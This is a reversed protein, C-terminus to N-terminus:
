TDSLNYFLLNTNPFTDSLTIRFLNTLQRVVSDSLYCFVSPVTPCIVFFVRKTNQTKQQVIKQTKSSLELFFQRVIGSFVTWCFVFFLHLQRVIRSNTLSDSLVCFNNFHRVIKTIQRVVNSSLHCFSDSLDHIEM